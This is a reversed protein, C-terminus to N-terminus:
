VISGIWLLTDDNQEQEPGQFGKLRAEEVEDGSLVSDSEGEVPGLLIRERETRQLAM